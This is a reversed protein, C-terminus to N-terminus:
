DVLDTKFHFAQYISQTNHRSVETSLKGHSGQKKLELPELDVERDKILRGMGDRERVFPIFVQRSEKLNLSKKSNLIFSAPSEYIERHVISCSM